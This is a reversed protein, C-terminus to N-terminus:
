FYFADRSTAHLERAAPSSTALAAAHRMAEDEAALLWDIRLGSSVFVHGGEVPCLQATSELDLPSKFPFRM